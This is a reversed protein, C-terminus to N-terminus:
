RYLVGVNVGLTKFGIEKEYLYIPKKYYGEVRFQLRKKTKYNIGVSSIGFLKNSEHMVRRDPITVGRGFFNDNLNFLYTGIGALVFAEWRESSIFNYQLIIPVEVELRSFRNYYRPSTVGTAISDLPAGLLTSKYKHVGVGSILELRKFLNFYLQFSYANSREPLDDIKGVDVGFHQWQQSSNSAPIDMWSYHYYRHLGIKWRSEVVSDKEISITDSEQGIGVQFLLCFLFLAPYKM